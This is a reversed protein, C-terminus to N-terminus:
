EAKELLRAQTKKICLGSTYHRSMKGKGTFIGCRPCEIKILLKEQWYKKYYEPDLPKKNYSGDPMLRASKKKLVSGEPISISELM